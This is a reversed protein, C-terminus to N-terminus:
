PHDLLRQVGLALGAPVHALDLRVEAPQLAIDCAQMPLGQINRAMTDVQFANPRQSCVRLVTRLSLAALMGIPHPPKATLSSSTGKLGDGITKIWASRGNKQTELSRM